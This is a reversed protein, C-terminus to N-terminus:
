RRNRRAMAPLPEQSGAPTRPEIMLDPAAVKNLMARRFSTFTGIRYKIASLGPPNSPSGPGSPAITSSPCCATGAGSFTSNLSNSSNM